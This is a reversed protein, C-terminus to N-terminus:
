RSRTHVRSAMSIEGNGASPDILIKIIKVYVQAYFRIILALTFNHNRQTLGHICTPIHHCVNGSFGVGRWRSFQAPFYANAFIRVHVGYHQAYIASTPYAQHIIM